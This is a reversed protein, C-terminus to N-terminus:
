HRTTTGTKKIAKKSSSTKRTQAVSIDVYIVGFASIAGLIVHFENKATLTTMVVPICRLSRDFSPQINIDFASEYFFRM